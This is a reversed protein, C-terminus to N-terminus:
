PISLSYKNAALGKNILSKEPECTSQKEIVGLVIVMGFGSIILANEMSDFDKTHVNQTSLKIMYNKINIM